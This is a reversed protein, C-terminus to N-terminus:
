DKNSNNNHIRPRAKHKFVQQTNVIKRNDIRDDRDNSKKEGHEILSIIHKIDGILKKIGEISSLNKFIEFGLLGFTFTVFAMTEWTPNELVYVKCVSSALAAVMTSSIVKHPDFNYGEISNTNYIEKLISGSFSFILCGIFEIVFSIDIGVVSALTIDDFM